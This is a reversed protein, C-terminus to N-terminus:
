RIFTISGSSTMEIDILKKFVVEGSNTIYQYSLPIKVANTSYNCYSRFNIIKMEHVMKEPLIDSFDESEIIINHCKKNSKEITIDIEVRENYPIISEIVTELNEKAHHLNYKLLDFFDHQPKIVTDSM